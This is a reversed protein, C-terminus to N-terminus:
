FLSADSLKKQTIATKTRNTGNNYFHIYYKHLNLRAFIPKLTFDLIFCHFDLALHYKENPQM